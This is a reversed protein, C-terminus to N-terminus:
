ANLEISLTGSGDSCTFVKGVHFVITGNGRGGGTIWATSTASGACFNTQATILEVGTALNVDLTISVPTSAAAGVPGALAVAALGAIGLATMRTRMPAGGPAPVTTTGRVGM